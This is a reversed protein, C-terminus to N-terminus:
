DPSSRLDRVFLAPCSLHVFPLRPRGAVGGNNTQLAGSLDRVFLAPCSLHVFPLRPRRAIGGNNTPLAGSTVSLFLLVLFIFLPYGLGGLLAVTILRSLV